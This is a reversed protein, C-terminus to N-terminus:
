HRQHSVLRRSTQAAQYGALAAVVLGIILNSWLAVRITSYRLLYPSFIMWIGLISVFLNVDSREVNLAEWFAAVAILIGVILSNWFAAQLGTYGFILPAILLLLGLIGIIWSIWRTKM